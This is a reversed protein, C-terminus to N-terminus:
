GNEILQFLLQFIVIMFHQIGRTKILLCRGSFEEKLSFNAEKPVKIICSSGNISKNGMGKEIMTLIKKGGERQFFPIAGSCKDEIVLNFEKSENKQRDTKQDLTSVRVYLVKM